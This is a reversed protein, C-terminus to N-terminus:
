SLTMWELLLACRMPADKMVFYGVAGFRVDASFEDIDTGTSRTMSQWFREGERYSLRKGMKLWFVQVAGERKGLQGHQAPM